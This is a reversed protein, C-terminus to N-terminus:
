LQPVPGGGIESSVSYSIRNHRSRGKTKRKERVVNEYYRINRRRQVAYRALEKDECSEIWHWVSKKEKLEPNRSVWSFNRSDKPEEKLDMWEGRSDLPRMEMIKVFALTEWITRSLFNGKRYFLSTMAPTDKKRATSRGDPPSIIVWVKGTPTFGKIHPDYSTHVKVMYGGAFTRWFSLQKKANIMRTIPKGKVGKSRGEREKDEETMFLLGARTFKDILNKIRPHEEKKITM